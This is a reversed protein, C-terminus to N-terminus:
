ADTATRLGADGRRMKKTEQGKRARAANCKDIIRDHQSYLKMCVDHPLRIINGVAQGDPGSDVSRIDASWDGNPMRTTAVTYVLTGKLIGGKELPMPVLVVAPGEQHQDPLLLGKVKRPQRPKKEGKNDTKKDAKKTRM